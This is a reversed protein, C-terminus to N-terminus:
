MCVPRVSCVENECYGSRCTVNDTCADGLNGLRHCKATDNGNPLCIHGAACDDGLVCPEGDGPLGRCHGESMVDAADCYEDNPCESPLSLRCTGGSEVPAQCNFGNSGDFACSLGEMCLTSSPDCVAGLDGVQVDANRACKGATDKTSGMCTLGLPCVAGSNGACNDGEQAPSKCKGGYCIRGNECEEDRGCDEDAGHRSNCVRPCDGTSCFSAGACDSGISCTDGSQVQGEIAKQCSEPLRETQVRCGMARTDRYCDELAGEQIHIRGREVSDALSGLDDQGISGAFRTECPERGIFSTLKQQGVCDLLSGCVAEALHQAITAVDVTHMTGADDSDSSHMMTDPKKDTSTGADPKPKPKTSTTPESPKSMM